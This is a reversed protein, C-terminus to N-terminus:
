LPGKQVGIRPGWEMGISLGPENTFRGAMPTRSPGPTLTTRFRRFTGGMISAMPARARAWAPLIRALNLIKLATRRCLGSAVSDTPAPAVEAVNLAANTSGNASISIPEQATAERPRGRRGTPTCPRLRRGDLVRTCLAGSRLWQGLTDEADLYNKTAALASAPPKLGERQYALCGDIMWRLIASHEARLKEPLAVDREAEPIVQLFPVLLVRRKIAEGRFSPKHNGAVWLTFQPLYTFFDQRMFRAAVQDGGTLQKLKPEDWARNPGLEQCTVMRAGRLMAMDCPHRDSSTALLLDQAGVAAYEGLVHSVTNLLVGKGNGGQGWCFLVVYDRIEGLLSYGTARQIFPVLELDHRFIRELFAQWIPAPSGPPAPAVSTLKTIFESPRAERLDGTRLDITGGPTGLLSLGADWQAVTAVLEANSRAMSCVNARMPESRLGKAIGEAQARAKDPSLDPWIKTANRVLDDSRRRLYDRCRTMHILREDPEWRAGTWFLWKSWLAVHRADAPWQRGMGLALGDHSLDFLANGSQGAQAAAYAADFDFDDAM